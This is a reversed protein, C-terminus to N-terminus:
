ACEHQRTEEAEAGRLAAIIDEYIFRRVKPSLRVEPIRGERAWRTVTEPAVGLRDAVESKDLLEPAM